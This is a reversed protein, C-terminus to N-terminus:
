ASQSPRKGTLVYLILGAFMTALGALSEIPHSRLLYIIMWVTIASFILPPLPYAWVKYPRPLEPRTQRLVIVGLVTLLSCFLL